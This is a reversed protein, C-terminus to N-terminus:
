GVSGYFLIQRSWHEIARQRECPKPQGILMPKDCIRCILCDRVLKVHFGKCEKINVKVKASDSM